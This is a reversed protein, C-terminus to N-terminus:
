RQPVQSVTLAVLSLGDNAAPQAMIARASADAKSPAGIEAQVVASLLVLLFGFGAILFPFRMRAM